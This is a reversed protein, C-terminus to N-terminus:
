KYNHNHNGLTKHVIKTFKKIDFPKDLFASAKLKRAKSKVSNNGYGSIMIVKLNPNTQNLKELVNLGSIGFLKYDLVMLDYKQEAIKGLATEGDYAINVPYGESELIASIIECTDRDNDVVLVKEKKRSEKM